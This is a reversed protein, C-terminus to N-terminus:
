QNTIQSYRSTSRGTSSLPISSGSMRFGRPVWNRQPLSCQTCYSPFRSWKSVRFATIVRTRSRTLCWGQRGCTLLRPPHLQSTIVSFPTCALRRVPRIQARSTPSGTTPTTGPPPPCHQTPNPPTTPTHPTAPTPPTSTPTSPAPTTPTASCPASRRPPPHRGPHRHHRPHAAPAPQDRHLHRARGRRRRHGPQLAGTACTTRGTTPMSVVAAGRCDDVTGIM